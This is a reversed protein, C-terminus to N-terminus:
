NLHASTEGALEGRDMAAEAALEGRAKWADTLRRFEDGTVGAARLRRIYAAYADVLPKAARRARVFREEHDLDDSTLADANLRRTFEAFNRAIEATLADWDTDDM